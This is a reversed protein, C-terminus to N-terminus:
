QYLNLIYHDFVSGQPVGSIVKQSESYENNIVVVQYRDKLFDEIWKYVKDHIGYSNLKHYHILPKGLTM